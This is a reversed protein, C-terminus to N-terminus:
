KLPLPAPDVTEDQAIESTVVAVVVPENSNLQRVAPVKASTNDRELLLTPMPVAVGLLVSVTKPVSLKPTTSTTLVVVLPKTLVPYRDVSIAWPAAPSQATPTFGEPKTPLKTILSKDPPPLASSKELVVTVPVKPPPMTEPPVFNVVVPQETELVVPPATAPLNVRPALVQVTTIVNCPAVVEVAGLPQDQWAESRVAGNIKILWDASLAVVALKLIGAVAPAVSTILKLQM